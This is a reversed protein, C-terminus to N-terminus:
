PQAPKDASSRFTIVENATRRPTAPLSEAEDVYGLRVVLYPEGIGSLLEGLLYKSWSVEVAESLPATSLGRATATLLLASMAEGARLLDAPEADMGYLITYAAGQDHDQGAALVEGGQPAFERVPVRRLAPAVATAPPVGDGTWAPRNTWRTLDKRYAPDLYEADAAQEVLIGLMPVQDHPVVHLYAGHAEVVRRLDSLTEEDVARDGFARRDTRRRAIAEVLARAAPDPTVPGAEDLRVRALVDGDGAPFRTVTAPWGAAALGTLAHHLAGGCSMLMLRRDPDIAPVRREPDASLEMVGAGITWRWPQTNFVSPARLAVRAAGELVARMEEPLASM